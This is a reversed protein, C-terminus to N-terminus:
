FDLAPQSQFFKRRATYYRGTAIGAPVVEIEAGSPRAFLALCKSIVIDPHSNMLLDTYGGLQAAVASMNKASTDSKTKLDGLIYEGKDNVLIFDTTGAISREPDVLKLESAVPNCTQWIPHDFVHPLYDSYEGGDLKEGTKLWHEVIGHLFKGREAADAYNAQMYARESKTKPSVIASISYRLWNGNYKYRHIDEFFELGDPPQLPNAQSLPIM